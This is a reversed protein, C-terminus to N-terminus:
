QGEFLSRSLASELKVFKPTDGRSVELAFFYDSLHASQEAKIKQSIM